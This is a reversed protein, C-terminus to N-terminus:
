AFGGLAIPFRGPHNQRGFCNFILLLLGLYLMCVIWDVFLGGYDVLYVICVHLLLVLDCYDIYDVM